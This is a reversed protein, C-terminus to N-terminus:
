QRTYHRRKSTTLLAYESKAIAYGGQTDANLDVDRLITNFEAATIAQPVTIVDTQAILSNAFISTLWLCRWLQKM